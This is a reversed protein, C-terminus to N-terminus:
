TPREMDNSLWCIMMRPYCWVVSMEAPDVILYDECLLLTKGQCYCRVVQRRATCRELVRRVAVWVTEGEIKGSPLESVLNVKKRIERALFYDRRMQSIPYTMASKCRQYFCREVTTLVLWFVVRSAKKLQSQWTNFFFAECSFAARLHVHVLLLDRLLIM